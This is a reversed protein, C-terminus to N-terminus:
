AAAVPLEAPSMLREIAQLMDFMRRADAPTLADSACDAFKTWLAEPPPPRRADGLPHTFRQDLKRGNKLAVVVGDGERDRGEIFV